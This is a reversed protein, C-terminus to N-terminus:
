GFGVFWFGCFLVVLGGRWVREVILDGGCAFELGFKYALVM